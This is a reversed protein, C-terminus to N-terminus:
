SQLKEILKLNIIKAANEWADKTNTKPYSLCDAPKGNADFNVIIVDGITGRMYYLTHLLSVYEQM